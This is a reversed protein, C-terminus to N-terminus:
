HSDTAPPDAAATRVEIEAGAAVAVAVAAVAAAQGAALGGAPGAVPGAAAAAALVIRAAPGDAAAALVPLPRRPGVPRSM